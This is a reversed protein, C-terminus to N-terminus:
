RGVQDVVGAACGPGATPAAAILADLKSDQTIEGRLNIRLEGILQRTGVKNCDLTLRTGAGAGFAQDFAARVQEATVSKGISEVFLTRLPSDNIQRVLAISESFYEEPTESYCTGHKIWEHRDLGSQVGPMVEALAARTEPTLAPAALGTWRRKRDLDQEEAGVGCYTNTRPQPWLGHLTFHAADFREATQSRCEPKTPRSECFAPQWSMALLYDRGPGPTGTATTGPCAEVRKGCAVSVWRADPVATPVSIRYYTPPEKNAALIPYATGAAITVAGPNTNKRISQLAPCAQEAVLCGSASPDHAPQAMAPRRDLLVPALAVLFALAVPGIM